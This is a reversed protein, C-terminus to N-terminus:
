TKALAHSKGVCGSFGAGPRLDFSLHCAQASVLLRPMPTLIM